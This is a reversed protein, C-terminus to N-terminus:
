AACTSGRASCTATTASGSSAGPRPRSRRRVAPGAAHRVGLLRFGLLNSRTGVLRRLTEDQVGRTAAGRGRRRRGAGGAPRARRRRARSHLHARAARCAGQRRSAERARRRRRRPLPVPPPAARGGRARAAGAGAGPAAEAQRAIERTKEFLEVFVAVKSRLIAPDVPKVIYDVAGAEYGRFVNEPSASIGTLFIIPISRTEARGRISAATEFGDMEPMQVDLLIVAFQETTLLRLAERGSGATVIRAGLPELFAELADLNEPRDDVILVAAAAADTRDSSVEADIVDDRNASWRGPRRPM